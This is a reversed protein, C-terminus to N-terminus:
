YGAPVIMSGEGTVVTSGGVRVRVTRGNQKDASIEIRSPRGMAVGQDVQWSFTGNPDSLADALSAALAAAASGTAPDEDVGVGPGFMRAHIRSGSAASGAFFFLDRAWAKAFHGSWAARDLVARDVAERSAVRIFCFPLGVSAFWADTVGEVPLSLAAAAAALSPSDASPRETGRNLTFRSTLAEGRVEIDVSVPGIGEELVVTAKGDRLEVLGRNALVAATGVTPHGAFPLEVAPTFIRVRRTYAPNRPPFVFTSESFNLERALSQMARDSLGHADPFVALQNGGFAKSTFVDAIVFHHPM